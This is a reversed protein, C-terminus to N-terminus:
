MSTPTLGAMVPAPSTLGHIPPACTAVSTICSISIELIIAASIKDAAFLGGENNTRYQFHRQCIIGAINHVNLLCWNRQHLFLVTASSIHRYIGRETYRYWIANRTYRQVKTSEHTVLCVQQQQRLSRLWCPRHEKYGPWMEVVRGSTIIILPVLAARTSHRRLRSSGPMSSTWWTVTDGNTEGVKADEKEIWRTTQRVQRGTHPGRWHTM